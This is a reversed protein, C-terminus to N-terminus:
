LCIKLFESVICTPASITTPNEEGAVTMGEIINKQKIQRITSDRRNSFILAVVEPSRLIGYGTM